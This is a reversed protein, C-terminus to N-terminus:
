LQMITDSYDILTSYTLEWIETYGILDILQKKYQFNNHLIQKLSYFTITYFWRLSGMGYSM